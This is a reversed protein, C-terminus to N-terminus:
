DADLRNFCNRKLICSSLIFLGILVSFPTRNKSVLILPAAMISLQRVIGVAVNFMDRACQNNAKFEPNKKQM